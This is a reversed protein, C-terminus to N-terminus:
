KSGKGAAGAGAALSDAGPFSPVDETRMHELMWNASATLESKPYKGLLERFAAEAQDYDKLEESYVFGIMFQAQPAIDADPYQQIVKRYGDIRLQPAGAQQADQFMERATKRSSTFNKIATSDDVVGIRKRAEELMEKYYSSQRASALSRAVFSKVQEFSRTNEPRYADVKVVSWGKATKYPGGIGGDGLAMASEALAPETGLTPFVGDKTVSGLSGASARSTSDTSYQTVLKPWDAGKAKALALVKRAELETKLQIHRLSVTAPTHFDAIHEDYYAQMESDSPAPSGAMLESVRTRVLLDRRSAALQRLIDARSAMGNAEADQMWVREEVLRQLLQVRGDPTQYNARYQEPIEQLRDNLTRRTIVDKGVRVLVVDSDNVAAAPAAAKAPSVKKSTAAFASVVGLLLLLAFGVFRLGRSM